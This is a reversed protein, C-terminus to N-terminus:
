GRAPYAAKEMWRSAYDQEGEDPYLPMLGLYCENENGHWVSRISCMLVLPPDAPKGMIEITANKGEAMCSAFFATSSASASFEIRRPTLVRVMGEYVTEEEKNRFFCRANVEVVRHSDYHALHVREIVVFIAFLAGVALLVFAADINDAKRLLLAAFGTATGLLCIVAVTQNVSLGLRRLRHALHNHDSAFPSRTNRLRLFIVSATDYLPVSLVLLPMILPALSANDKQMFDSVFPVSALLFGLFLSGGSGMYTKAPHWNHPLYGLIVGLIAALLVAVVEQGTVMMFILLIGSAVAAVGGALGDLGDLLNFANTIGVIWVVSVAFVILVPLAGMSPCVGMLVLVVACFLEGGIRFSVSAQRIDDYVGLAVILLCTGGLSLLGRLAQPSPEPLYNRLSGPLLERGYLLVLVHGAVVLLLACFMAAGGLLPMAHAHQRGGVPHDLVDWRRALSISLRVSLWSVASSVIIFYLVVPIAQSM